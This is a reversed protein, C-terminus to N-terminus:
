SRWTVTATSIPTETGSHVMQATYTVPVTIVSDVCTPTGMEWHGDGGTLAYDFADVPGVASVNFKVYATGSATPSANITVFGNEEVSKVKWFSKYTAEPIFMWRKNNSETANGNTTRGNSSVECWIYGGSNGNNLNMM